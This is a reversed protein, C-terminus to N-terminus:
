LAHFISQRLGDVKLKKPRCTEYMVTWKWRKPLDVKVWFWGSKVPGLTIILMLLRTMRCSNDFVMM